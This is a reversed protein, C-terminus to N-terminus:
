SIRKPSALRVAKWFWKIALLRSQPVWPVILSTRGGQYLSASSNKETGNGSNDKTKVLLPSRFLFSPIM